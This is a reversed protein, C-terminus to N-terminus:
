PWGVHWPWSGMAILGAVLVVTKRTATMKQM